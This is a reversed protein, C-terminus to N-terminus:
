PRNAKHRAMYSYYHVHENDCSIMSVLLFLFWTLIRASLFSSAREDFDSCQAIYKVAIVCMVFCLCMIHTHRPKKWMFHNSLGIHAFALIITGEGPRIRLHCTICIELLCRHQSVLLQDLAFMLQELSYLVVHSSTQTGAIFVIQISRVFYTMGTTLMLFLIKEEGFSAAKTM